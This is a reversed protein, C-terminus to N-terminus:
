AVDPEPVPRDDGVVLPALERLHAVDVVAEADEPGAREVGEQPARGDVQRVDLLRKEGSALEGPVLDERAEVLDAGVRAQLLEVGEKSFLRLDANGGRARGTRKFGSDWTM